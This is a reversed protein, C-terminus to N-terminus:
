TPTRAFTRLEEETPDSMQVVPRAAAAYVQLVVIIVTSGLSAGLLMYAIVGYGIAKVLFGIIPLGVVCGLICGLVSAWRVFSTIVMYNCTWQFLHVYINSVSVGIMFAASYLVVDGLTLATLLLLFSSCAMFLGINLMIRASLICSSVMSMFRGVLIGAEYASIMLAGYAPSLNNNRVALSSLLYRPFYETNMYFCSFLTLLVIFGFGYCRPQGLMTANTKTSLMSVQDKRLFSPGLLIYLIAFAGGASLEIMGVFGYLYEIHRLRTLLDTHNVAAGHPTDDGSNVGSRENSGSQDDLGAVTGNNLTANGDLSSNSGGEDSVPNLAVREIHHPLFSEPVQTGSPVVTGPDPNSGTNFLAFILLPCLISGVTWTVNISYAMIKRAKHNSWLLSM